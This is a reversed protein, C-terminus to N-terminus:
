AIVWRMWGQYYQMETLSLILSTSFINGMLMASVYRRVLLCTLPSLPEKRATQLHQCLAATTNYNQILLDVPMLSVELTRTHKYQMHTQQTEVLHRSSVTSM